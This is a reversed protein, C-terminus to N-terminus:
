PASAPRRPRVGGAVTVSFSGFSKFSMPLGVLRSSVGSFDVARGEEADVDAGPCAVATTAREGNKPPLTFAEVGRLRLGHRAHPM